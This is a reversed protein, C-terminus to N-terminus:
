ASWGSAFMNLSATVSTLGHIADGPNLVCGALDTIIVPDAPGLPVAQGAASAGYIINATARSGGARVLWLTLTSALAGVNIVSARTLVITTNAPATYLIGAADPVAVPGFLALPATM